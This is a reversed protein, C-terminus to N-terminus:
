VTKWISSRIPVTAGVYEKQSVEDESWARGGGTSALKRNKTVGFEHRDHADSTPTYPIGEQPNLQITPAM